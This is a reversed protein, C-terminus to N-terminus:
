MGNYGPQTPPQKAVLNQFWYAVNGLLVLVRREPETQLIIQLPELLQTHNNAPSTIVYQLYWATLCM